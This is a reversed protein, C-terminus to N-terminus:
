VVVKAEGFQFALWVAIFIFLHFFEAVERM